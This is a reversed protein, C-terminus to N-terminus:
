LKNLLKQYKKLFRKIDEIVKLFKDKHTLDGVVHEFYIIPSDNKLLKFYKKLTSIFRNELLKIKELNSPLHIIIGKAKIKKAVELQAEFYKVSWPNLPITNFTTHIYIRKNLIDESIPLEQGKISHTFLQIVPIEEEFIERYDDIVGDYYNSGIM